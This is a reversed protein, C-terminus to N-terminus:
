IVCKIFALMVVMAVNDGIKKALTKLLIFRRLMAIKGDKNRIRKLQIERIKKPFLREVTVIIEILHSYKEFLSRGNM